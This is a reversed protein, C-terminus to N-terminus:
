LARQDEMDFPLPEPASLSKILLNSLLPVGLAIWDWESLHTVGGICFLDVLEDVFVSFHDYAKLCPIMALLWHATCHVFSMYSSFGRGFFQMVTPALRLERSGM